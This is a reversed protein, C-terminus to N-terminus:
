VKEEDGAPAGLEKLEEVTKKKEPIIVTSVYEVESSADSFANEPGGHEKTFAEYGKRVEAYNKKCIADAKKIFTPKSIETAAVQSSDGSGDSGCGAGVAAAALAGVLLAILGRGRMVNGGIM